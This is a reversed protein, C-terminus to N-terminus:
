IYGWEELRTYAHKAYDGQNVKQLYAHYKRASEEKRGMGELSFGQFFSINPNGPLAKEYDNFMALAQDFKKLQLNTMGLVHKSQHEEPYVARAKQAFRNADQHNKLALHCKAMKLNGAYDEPAVKLAREYHERAKEPNKRMMERDGDQMAKIAPGIKRLEATNDMYRERYVSRTRKQDAYVTDVEKLATKYRESSMPHTSFLVAMSSENKGSMENLMNMLGIFGEPNYDSKVMYELGLSDAEREQNRSYGALLAGAGIGGLGAVLDGMQSGATVAAGSLVASAILGRTMRQSTHRAAVHGAEHGLLSALEAENKMDLLIGRTVGITGGPFAYANVYPANLTHFAYPMEPRHSNRVITQGVDAVYASLQKDRSTGYDASIQHPSNERDISIEQAQSMLMLERQGTVPNAACGTIIGFGTLASLQLFQRRSIGGALMAKKDNDSFSHKM